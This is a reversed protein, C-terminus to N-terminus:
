LVFDVAFKAGDRRIDAVGSAKPPAPMMLISYNFQVKGRAPLWRYTPTEHFIGLSVAERLGIPFPTNAFEMGRTLSKGAWPAEPRGNNEEWNGVWPFDHRNWHYAIMVGQKPNIASFWADGRAPDMLQTSFDSSKRYRRSILRM